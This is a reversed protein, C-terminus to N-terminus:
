NRNIVKILRFLLIEALETKSVNRMFSVDGLTDDYREANVCSMYKHMLALNNCESAKVAAEFMLFYMAMEQRNHLAHKCKHFDNHKPRDLNAYLIKQAAKRREYFNGKVNVVKQYISHYEHWLKSILDRRNDNWDLIVKARTVVAESYQSSGWIIEEALKVIRHTM